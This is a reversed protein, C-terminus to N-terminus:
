NKGSRIWRNQGKALAWRKPLAAAQGLFRQDQPHGAGAQEEFM